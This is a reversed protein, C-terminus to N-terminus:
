MDDKSEGKEEKDEKNEKSAKFLEKLLELFAITAKAKSDVEEKDAVKWGKGLEGYLKEELKDATAKAMEEHQFRMAMEDFAAFIPEKDRWEVFVLMSANKIDHPNFMKYVIYSAM